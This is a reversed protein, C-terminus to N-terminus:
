GGSVAPFIAIVDGSKLPMDLAQPGRVLSTNVFLNMHHRLRGTEDCVSRHISPHLRELEELAGRVSAAEIPLTAAGDCLGQLARAVQISITAPASSM